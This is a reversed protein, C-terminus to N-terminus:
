KKRLGAVTFTDPEFTPNTNPNRFYYAALLKGDPRVKSALLVPATLPMKGVAVFPM